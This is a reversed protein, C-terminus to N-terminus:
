ESVVKGAKSICASGYKILVLAVALLLVIMYSFRFPLDFLRGEARAGTINVLNANGSAHMLLMLLLSGGSSNFIWTMLTAVLM